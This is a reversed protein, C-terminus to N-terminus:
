VATRRPSHASQAPLKSAKTTMQTGPKTIPGSNIRPNAKFAPQNGTPNHPAGAWATNGITARPSYKPPRTARNVRSPIVWARWLSYMRVARALPALSSRTRSFCARGVATM